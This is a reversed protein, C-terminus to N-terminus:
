GSCTEYHIIRGGPRLMKSTNVLLAVPNFVNDLCGGSFVFDFKSKLNDTIPLNLDCIINAGEYDSIDVCNYTVDLYTKLFVDDRLLSDGHRTDKDLNAPDLWRAQLKMNIDPEDVFISSMLEKDILVSQRGCVLADGQIKQYENENKIFKIAQKPLGM